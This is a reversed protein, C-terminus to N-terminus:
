AVAASILYGATSGAIVPSVEDTVPYVWSKANRDSYPEEVLPYGNLRYTYGFSPTGLEALTGLETYGVVVFKGWVDAFTGNNDYIADGILVRKVGFLNAVLEPTASDRGTYKIRDLIKPHQRLKAWVAAGMAVTNPRKGIKGRIAEKATEVDSVPDSVGSYDSWQSTGSLTVKNGAPYNAATTALVSQAYELRLGIINQVKMIGGRALDIGPVAAADQLYEYPVLGELSHSELAFPSGTYGYQIRKTGSGPTRATNYLAFDEKGFTIIKGGRAGVPVYPFLEMGIFEANRFGQAVTSLIPDVVRAGATNMTIGLAGAFGASETSVVGFHWAIGIALAFALMKLNHSSFVQRM